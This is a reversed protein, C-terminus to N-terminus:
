RVHKRAKNTQDATKGENKRKRRRREKEREGNIINLPITFVRAFLNRNRIRRWGRRRFQRQHIPRLTLFFHPQFQGNHAWPLPFLPCAWLSCDSCTQFHKLLSELGTQIGAPFNIGSTGPSLNGASAYKNGENEIWGAKNRQTGFSTRLKLRHM